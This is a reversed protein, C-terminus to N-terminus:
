EGPREGSDDGAAAALADGGALAAAFFLRDDALTRGMTRAPLGSEAYEDVRAERVEIRHREGCAERLEGLEAAEEPVPVVVSALLLRLVTAAHHSLGRHRPRPDGGSM